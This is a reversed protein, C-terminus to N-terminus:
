SAAYRHRGGLKQAPEVRGPPVELRGKGSERLLLQRCGSDRARPRHSVDDGVDGPPLFFRQRVEGVDTGPSTRRSIGHLIASDVREVGEHRLPSPVDGKRIDKTLVVYHVAPEEVVEPIDRFFQDASLRSEASSEPQVRVAVIWEMRRPDPPPARRGSFRDDRHSISGQPTVGPRVILAGRKKMM